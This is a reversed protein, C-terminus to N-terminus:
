DLRAYPYGPDGTHRIYKNFYSGKSASRLFNFFRWREVGGYWYVAEGEPADFTIQMFEPEEAYATSEIFSSTVDITDELQKVAREDFPEGHEAFAERESLVPDSEIDPPGTEGETTVDGEESINVNPTSDLLLDVVYRPVDALNVEGGLEPVDVVFEEADRGIGGRLENLSVAKERWEDLTEQREIQEQVPDFREIDLTLFEDIDASLGEFVQPLVDANQPQLISGLMPKTVKKFIARQLAPTEKAFGSGEIIGLENANLGAAALVLKFYWQQEQIADLDVVSEGVPIWQVEGDTSVTVLDHPDGSAEVIDDEVEELKDDNISGLFHLFGAPLQSDSYHRKQHVDVDVILELWERVKTAISEGYLGDSRTSQPSRMAVVRDQELATADGDMTITNGARKYPIHWYAPDSGFDGTDEDITHQIQLPPLPKFAVVPYEGDASPLLEWYAWALDILDSVTATILNDFTLDQFHPGDYIDEILAAADAAPGSLEGDEATVVPGGGTLQQTVTIKILQMPPTQGLQKATWFERPRPTGKGGTLADDTDEFTVGTLPDNHEIREGQIETARAQIGGSDAIVRTDDDTDDAADGHGLAQRERTAAREFLSEDSSM